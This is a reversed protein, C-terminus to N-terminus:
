RPAFQTWSIRYNVSWQEIEKDMDISILRVGKKAKFTGSIGERATIDGASIQAIDQYYYVRIAGRAKTDAFHILLRPDNFVIMAWKPKGMGEVDELDINILGVKTVEIM